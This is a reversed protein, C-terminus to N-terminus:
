GTSDCFGAAILPLALWDKSKVGNEAGACSVLSLFFFSTRVKDFAVLLLILSTYTFAHM